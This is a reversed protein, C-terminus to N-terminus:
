TPRLVAECRNSKKIEQREYHLGFVGMLATAGYGAWQYLSQDPSAIITTSIAVNVASFLLAKFDAASQVALKDETKLRRDREVAIANGAPAQAIVDVVATIAVKSWDPTIGLHQLTLAGFSLFLFETIGWIVYAQSRLIKERVPNGPEIGLFDVIDTSRMVNQYERNFFQLNGLLGFIVAGMLWAQDWPMNHQVVLSYSAPIGAAVGRILAYKLGSGKEKFWAKVRQSKPLPVNLDVVTTSAANAVAGAVRAAAKSISEGQLRVDVVSTKTEPHARRFSAVDASLHATVDAVEAATEAEGAEFSFQATEGQANMPIASSEAVFVRSPSGKVDDALALGGSAATLLYITAFVLSLFKRNGSLLAFGRPYLEL